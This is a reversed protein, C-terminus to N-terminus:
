EKARNGNLRFVWVPCPASRVVQRTVSGILATAIPGSEAAMLIFDAQTERAHKLISDVVSPTQEDVILQGPIGSEHARAVLQAGVQRQRAAEDKLLVDAAVWGGSILYVGSQFVQEAPRPMATLLTMHAKLRTTLEFAKEFIPTSSDVLDNALLIRLPQDDQVLPHSSHEEGAHVGTVLVPVQSQLLLEEAFSGLMLRQLGKRGHSATLILDYREVAAFHSLVEVTGKLSPRHQILVHPEQLGPLEVGKLKQALAKKAAPVYAEAWQGSFEISLGLEDPSLAYIPVIEVPTRAAIRRLMRLETEQARELKDFADMAWLIKMAKNQGSSSM